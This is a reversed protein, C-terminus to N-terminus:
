KHVSKGIITNVDNTRIGEFVLANRHQSGTALRIVNTEVVAVYYNTYSNNMVSVYTSQVYGNHVRTPDDCGELALILLAVVVLFAICLYFTFTNM